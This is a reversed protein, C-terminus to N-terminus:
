ARECASVVVTKGYHGVVVIVVVRAIVFGVRMIMVVRVVMGGFCGTGLVIEENMDVLRVNNCQISSAFSLFNDLRPM